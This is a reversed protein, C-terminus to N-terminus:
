QPLYTGYKRLYSGGEFLVRVRIIGASSPRIFFYHGGEIYARPCYEFVNIMLIARKKYPTMFFLCLFWDIVHYDKKLSNHLIYRDKDYSMLFPNYFQNIRKIGLFVLLKSLLAKLTQLNLFNQYYYWGEILVWPGWILFYLIRIM